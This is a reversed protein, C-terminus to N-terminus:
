EKKTLPGLDYTAGHKGVHTCKNAADAAGLLLLGLLSLKSCAIM